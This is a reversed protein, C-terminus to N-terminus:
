KLRTWDHRAVSWEIRIRGPKGTRRDIGELVFVYARPAGPWGARETSADIVVPKEERTAGDLGGLHWAYSRALPEVDARLGADELADLSLKLGVV